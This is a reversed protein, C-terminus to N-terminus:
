IYEESKKSKKKNIIWGKVSFLLINSNSLTSKHTPHLQTHSMTSKYNTAQPNDFQMCSFLKKLRVCSFKYSVKKWFDKPINESGFGGISSTIWVPIMGRKTSNKCFSLLQVSWTLILEIKYSLTKGRQACSFWKQQKHEFLRLVCVDLFWVYM